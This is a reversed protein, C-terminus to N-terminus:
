QDSNCSSTFVRDSPAGIEIFCAIWSLGFGILRLRGRRWLPIPPDLYLYSYQNFLSALRM